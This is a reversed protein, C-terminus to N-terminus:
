VLIGNGTVPTNGVFGRIICHSVTLSAASNFVIGNSGAGGGQIALAGLFVADNAGANITIANGNPAALVGAITGTGVINISKTIVLAGYGSSDKVDIEGGAATNDHAYQLTRCPNAISGCGAQDIGAGSIWTRANLASASSALALSLGLFAITTRILKM